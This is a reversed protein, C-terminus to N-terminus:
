KISVVRRPKGDVIDVTFSIGRGTFDHEGYDYDDLPLDTTCTDDYIAVGFKSYQGGKASLMRKGNKNEVIIHTLPITQLEGQSTIPSSPEPLRVDQLHTQEYVYIQDQLQGLLNNFANRRDHGNACDVLESIGFEVSHSGYNRSIRADIRFRRKKM